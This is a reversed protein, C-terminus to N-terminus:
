DAAELQRWYPLWRALIRERTGDARWRALAGNVATRLTDDERRVAWGLNERNLPRLLAALNAEDGSVSWICVPADHVILDIRRERLESVAASVTPYLFPSAYRAQERVFREGTTGEVVGVPRAVELVAHPTPYRGSDERRMLATLGSRLYPESFAVRVERAPTITMGAMLVDTRKALLAPVLDAWRVELLQLPRGLTAALERAFDVELGVLESGRRFAYPPVDVPV